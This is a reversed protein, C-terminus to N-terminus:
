LNLVEHQAERPSVPKVISNLTKMTSLVEYSLMGIFIYNRLNFGRLLTVQKRMHVIKIM